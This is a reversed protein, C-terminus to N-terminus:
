PRSCLERRHIKSGNNFSNLPKVNLSRNCNLIDTSKKCVWVNNKVSNNKKYINYLDIPHFGFQFTSKKRKM